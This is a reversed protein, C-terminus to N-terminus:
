VSATKAKRSKSPAAKKAVPAKKAAAKKPAAKKKTASKAKKDAATKKDEAAKVKIKAVLDKERKKSDVVLKEYKKVRDQARKQWLQLQGLSAM